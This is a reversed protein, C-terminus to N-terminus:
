EIECAFSKTRRCGSSAFYQDGSSHKTLTGILPCFSLVRCKILSSSAIRNRGLALISRKRRARAVLGYSTNKRHWTGVLFSPLVQFSELLSPHSRPFVDHTCTVLRFSSPTSAYLISAELSGSAKGDGLQGFCD